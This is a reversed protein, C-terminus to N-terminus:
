RPDQPDGQQLHVPRPAQKLLEPVEVSYTTDNVTVALKGDEQPAVTATIEKGDINFKFSKM